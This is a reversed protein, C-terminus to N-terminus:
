QQFESSQLVWCYIDKLLSGKAEEIRKKDDRPDSLRIDRICINRREIAEELRRIAGGAGEDYAIPM